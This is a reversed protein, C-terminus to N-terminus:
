GNWTSRSITPDIIVRRLSRLSDPRLDADAVWLISVTAVLFLVAAILWVDPPGLWSLIASAQRTRVLEILIALGTAAGCALLALELPSWETSGIRFLLASVSLSACVAAVGAIPGGWIVVVFALALLAAKAATPLDLAVPIALLIALGCAIDPRDSKSRLRGQIM